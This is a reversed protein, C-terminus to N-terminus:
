ESWQIQSQLEMSQLMGPNGTWWWSGSSAWVWTWRTLSAMWGDWGRDNGEEGAKLGELMLTKELSDARWMLHGFYNLTLMLGELWYEPNIEKLTSQNSRRASWPVRLLRRWCWLEFADIRQHEAEKITWSECGYMVIPFVMAKVIRVKIPWTNDRSKLISYLNTMAKRGLLLCRKIEYSWDGDATIESSLFIFDTVTQMKEGDIQWSTIPSSAMIKGKQINPKLGAKQAIKIVAQAEDLRANQMMYEAYLAGRTAWSTFFRGAICSVGILNRPWSSGGPSPIPYRSWYDQAERTVWITFFRSANHPVQTQDRPQYSGRSPPM